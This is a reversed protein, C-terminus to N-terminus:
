VDDAGAVTEFARGGRPFEVVVQIEIKTRLRTTREKIKTMLIQMERVTATSQRLNAMMSFQSTLILDRTWKAQVMTAMVTTTMKATMETKEMKEMKEMKNM